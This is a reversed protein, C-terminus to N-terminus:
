PVRQPPVAAEDRATQPVSALRGGDGDIRVGHDFYVDVIERGFRPRASPGAIRAVATWSFAPVGLTCQPWLTRAGNPRLSNTLVGCLQGFM